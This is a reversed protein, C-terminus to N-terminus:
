ASTAPLSAYLLSIGKWAIQAGICMLIFAIVRLTGHVTAASVRSTLRPAYAYCFYIAVSLVVVALAIGAYAWIRESLNGQAAHASLALMVVLTGPGATVPFTFPYFIKEAFAGESNRISYGAIEQHKADTAANADKGFLMSWALAIIILGGCVQVIPLSLGFCWLVFSGLFEIGILFAATSFAIRRALVLFVSASEDGILGLLILASGVPNTVPLLATFALLFSKVFVM